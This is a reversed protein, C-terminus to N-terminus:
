FSDYFAFAVSRSGLEPSGSAGALNRFHLSLELQGAFVWRLGANLYGNKASPSGDERDAGLQYEAAVSFEQSLRATLGAFLDPKVHEEELTRSVGAHLQWYDSFPLTKSAVVYFGVSAKEYGGDEMQKGYGRSDYGFALAPIVQQEEALRLKAEFEVRDNWDPEGSGVVNGAGYSVGVQLYPTVGIRLGALVGGEPLMRLGLTYAARPLTHATPVDVLELFEDGAARAGAPVALVAALLAVVALNGAM